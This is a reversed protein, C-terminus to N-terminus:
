LCFPLIGLTLDALLLFMVAERSPAQFASSCLFGVIECGAQLKNEFFSKAMFAEM